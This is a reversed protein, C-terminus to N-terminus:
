DRQGILVVHGNQLKENFNGIEIKHSEVKDDGNEYDSITTM